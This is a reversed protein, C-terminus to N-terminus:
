GFDFLFDAQFFFLNCLAPRFSRRLIYKIVIIWLGYLYRRLLRFWQAFVTEAFTTRKSKNKNKKLLRSIANLHRENLEWRTTLPRTGYTTELAFVRPESFEESPHSKANESRRCSSVDPGASEWLKWRSAMKGDYIIVRRFVTASVSRVPFVPVPACKSDRSRTFAIFFM